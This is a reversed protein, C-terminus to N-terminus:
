FQGKTGLSTFTADPGTTLCILDSDWDNGRTDGKHEIVYIRYIGDSSTHPLLGADKVWNYSDGVPAMLISSNDIKITSAVDLLPNLLVRIKIGDQTQEPWGIMGTDSNVITAQGPRASDLAVFEIEGARNYFYSYGATAAATHLIDRAMAYLVKGRPLKATPNFDYKKLPTEAAEAAVSVADSPTSGAALTLNVISQQAFYGEGALIDLYTDTPNDRGFRAQIIVGNFIIGYNGGDYGAQLVVTSYEKAKFEDLTEKRINYIRIHASQFSEKDAQHISFTCHLNSFDTSQTENGIVLSFRRIFQNHDQSM